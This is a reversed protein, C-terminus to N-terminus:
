FLLASELSASLWHFVDNCHLATEWQSPAIRIDVRFLNKSCEEKDTEDTRNDCDAVGDCKYAAPICRGDGCRYQDPRCEPLSFSWNEEMSILM